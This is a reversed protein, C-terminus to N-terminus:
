KEKKQSKDDVTGRSAPGQGEGNHSSDNLGRQKQERVTDVLTQLSALKAKVDRQMARM